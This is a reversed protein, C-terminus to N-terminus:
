QRDLFNELDAKAAQACGSFPKSVGIERHFKVIIADRVDNPKGRASLILNRLFELRESRREILKPRNLDLTAETRLAADDTPLPWILPGSFIFAEQPDREYPDFLGIANSKNTNCVDCAITLNGWKFRLTPDSSKPVIHEIDGYTIHRLPSECYACKEHTEALLVNKIEPHSYRSLLYTSPEEGSEIKGVLEDTWAQGHSSLINPEDLKVLFIM